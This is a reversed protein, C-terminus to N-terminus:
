SISIKCSKIDGNLGEKATVKITFFTYAKPGESVIRVDENFVAVASGMTGEYSFQKTRTGDAKKFYLNNAKALSYNIIYKVGVSSSLTFNLSVDEPPTISSKSPQIKSLQFPM